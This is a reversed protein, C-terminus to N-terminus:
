MGEEGGGGQSGNKVFAKSAVESAVGDIIAVAKVTASANLTIPEEYDNGYTATPAVGNTTYKISAGAPGSITVTTSDDFPTTGSITPSAVSSTGSGTSPSGGQSGSDGSNESGGTGSNSGSSGSNGNDQNENGGENENLFSDQDTEVNGMGGNLFREQGVPYTSIAQAFTPTANTVHFQAKSRLWNGNMKRSVIATMYTNDTTASTALAETLRVDVKLTNSTFSPTASEVDGDVTIFFSDLVTTGKKYSFGVVGFGYSGDAKPYMLAITCKDEFKKCGMAKVVESLSGNTTTVLSLTVKRNAINVSEISANVLPKPLSGLSIIYSGPVLGSQQYNCFGFLGDGSELELRLQKYNKRSFERYCQMGSTMDEFSHDCISKMASYANAITSVLCRQTMQASTRPNKGGEVRDKTIQQGDVVSYTHSKTSGRRLGYYNASKAM